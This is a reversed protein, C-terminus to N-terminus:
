EPTPTPPTPHAPASAGQLPVAHPPSPNAREQHPLTARLHDLIDCLVELTAAQAERQSPFMGHNGHRLQRAFRRWESSGVARETAKEASM